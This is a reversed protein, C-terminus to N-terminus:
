GSSTIVTGFVKHTEFKLDARKKASGKGEACGGKAEEDGASQQLRMVAVSNGIAARKLAKM